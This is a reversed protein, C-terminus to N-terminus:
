EKVGRLWTLAEHLSDTEISDGSLPVMLIDEIKSPSAYVTIKRGESWIELVM